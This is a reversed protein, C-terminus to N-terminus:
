NDENDPESDYDVLDWPDEEYEEDGEDTKFCVVCDPGDCDCGIEDKM